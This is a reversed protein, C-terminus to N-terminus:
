PMKSRFQAQNLLTRLQKWTYAMEAGLVGIYFVALGYIFEPPYDRPYQTRDMLLEVAIGGLLLFVMFIAIPDPQVSYRVKGEVRDMVVVRARPILLRFVGRKPLFTRRRTAILRQDAVKIDFIPNSTLLRKVAEFENLSDM